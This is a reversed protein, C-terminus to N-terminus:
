AACKSRREVFVSESDASFLVALDFSSGVMKTSNLDRAIRSSIIRLRLFRFAEGNEILKDSSRVV